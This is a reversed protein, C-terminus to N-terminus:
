HEKGITGRCLTSSFSSDCISWFNHDQLGHKKKLQTGPVVLHLRILNLM